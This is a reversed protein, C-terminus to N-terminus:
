IYKGLKDQFKVDLRLDDFGNYKKIEGDDLFYIVDCNKVVKMRHAILIVTMDGSIGLVDQLIEHEIAMDLSSTAEDLVLLSPKNYLARAIGIRQRQGGSLNMGNESLKTSFASPMQAVFDFINALRACEYVRNKDILSPDCGLAINEYITRSSIYLEQPVYGISGRISDLAKSDVIQGGFKLGFSNPHLLGLIVMTLTSKGSGSPGVVGINQGKKFEFNVNELVKENSGPFSYSLDSITIEDPIDNAVAIECITANDKAYDGLLEPVVNINGRMVSLNFYCNQLAPILKLSALMFFSLAPIMEVMSNQHRTGMFALVLVVVVYFITEIVYRPVQSLAVNEGSAKALRFNADSFEKIVLSFNNRIKLQKFAGYAENINNFRKTSCDSIVVGNDRVRRHIFQYMTVYILLIIIAASTTIIPEKVLMVTIFALSLIGKAVFNLSPVIVGMTLRQVESTSQKTIFSNDIKCFDLWSKKLYSQLIGNSIKGGMSTSFNTIVWTSYASYFGVLVFFLVSFLSIYIIFNIESLEAIQQAYGYLAFYISSKKDFFYAVFNTILLLSLIEAFSLFVIQVQIKILHIRDARSFFVGLRRIEGVISMSLLEKKPKKFEL